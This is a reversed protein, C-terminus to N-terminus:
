PLPTVARGATPWKERGVALGKWLTQMVDVAPQFATSARAAKLPRRFGESNARKELPADDDLERYSVNSRWLRCM